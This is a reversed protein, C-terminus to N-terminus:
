EGGTVFVNDDSNSYAVTRAKGASMVQAPSGCIAEKTAINWVVVSFNSRECTQTHHFDFLYLGLIITCVKNNRCSSTSVLVPLHM